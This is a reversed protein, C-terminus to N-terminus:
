RAAEELEVEGLIPECRYVVPRAPEVIGCVANRPIKAYIWIAPTKYGVRMDEGTTEKVLPHPMLRVVNLFKQKEDASYHYFSVLPQTIEAEPNQDLSDALRRLEASVEKALPM